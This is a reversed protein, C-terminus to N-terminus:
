RYKTLLPRAIIKDRIRDSYVQLLYQPLISLKSQYQLRILKDHYAQQLTPFLLAGSILLGQIQELTMQNATHKM